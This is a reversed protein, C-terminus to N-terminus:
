YTIQSAQLFLEDIQESTLGLSAAMVQLMASDRSLGNGYDWADIMEANVSNRIAADVTDLLGSRRLVTRAQALTVESPVVPVLTETPLQLTRDIDPHGSPILASGGGDLRVLTGGATSSIVHTVLRGGIWLGANYGPVNNEEEM